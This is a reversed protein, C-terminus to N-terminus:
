NLLTPMHHQDDHPMGPQDTRPALDLKAQEPRSSLGGPCRSHTHTGASVTVASPRSVLLTQRTLGASDSSFPQANSSKNTTVDAWSLLRHPTQSARM